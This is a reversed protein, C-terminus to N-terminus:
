IPRGIRDMPWATKGVTDLTFRLWQAEDSQPHGSDTEEVVKSDVRITNIRGDTNLFGQIGHAPVGAPPENRALWAEV